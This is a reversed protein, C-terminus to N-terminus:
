DLHHRVAIAAAETRNAAGLKNLISAVHTQATRRGVFLAEAIERNSRGAVLLRLVERERPTLGGAVAPFADVSALQAVITELAALGEAVARTFPLTRGARWAAMYEDRDLLARAAAEARDAFDREYPKTVTGTMTFLAEAAGLLRAAQEGNRTEAALLAVRILVHATEWPDALDRHLALSEHYCAAAQGRDGLAHWAIGLIGSAYATGLMNGVARSGALAEALLEAARPMDGAVYVALGLRQVAWPLRREDGLARALEVASEAFATAENTDGRQNAARSLLILADAETIQDGAARALALLEEALSNARLHDGQQLALNSAGNLAGM